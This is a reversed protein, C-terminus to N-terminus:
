GILRCNVMGPSSTLNTYSAFGNLHAWQANLISRIKISVKDSELDRLHVVGVKNTKEVFQFM